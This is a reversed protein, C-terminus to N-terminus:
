GIKYTAFLRACPVFALPAIPVCAAPPSAPAPYLPWPFRAAAWAFCYYSFLLRPLSNLFPACCIRLLHPTCLPARCCSPADQSGRFRSIPQVVSPIPRLIQIPRAASPAALSIHAALACSSLCLLTCNALQTLSDSVGSGKYRNAWNELNKIIVCRSDGSM